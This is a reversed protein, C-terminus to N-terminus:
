FQQINSTNSNPNYNCKGIEIERRRDWFKRLLAMAQIVLAIHAVRGEAQQLLLAKALYYHRVIGAMNFLFDESHSNNATNKEILAGISLFICGIITIIHYAASLLPLSEVPVKRMRGTSYIALAYLHMAHGVCKFFNSVERPHSVIKVIRAISWIPNMAGLLPLFRTAGANFASALDFIEKTWNAQFITGYEVFITHVVGFIKELLEIPEAFTELLWEARSISREISIPIEKGDQQDLNITYM